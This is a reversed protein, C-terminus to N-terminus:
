LSELFLNELYIAEDGLWSEAGSLWGLRNLLWLYFFPAIGQGVKPGSIRTYNAHDAHTELSRFPRLHAPTCLYYTVDVDQQKWDDKSLQTTPVRLTSRAPLPIRTPIPSLVPFTRTSLPSRAHKPKRTRHGQTILVQRKSNAHLAKWLCVGKTTQDSYNRTYNRL